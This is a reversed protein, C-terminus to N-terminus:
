RSALAESPWSWGSPSIYAPTRTPSLRPYQTIPTFSDMFMKYLDTSEQFQRSLSPMINAELIENLRRFDLPPYDQCIEELIAPSFARKKWSDPHKLLNRDFWFQHIRRAEGPMLDRLYLTGDLSPVPVEMIRM